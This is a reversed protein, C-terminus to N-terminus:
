GSDDLGDRLQVVDEVGVRPEVADDAPVVERVPGPGVHEIPHRRTV